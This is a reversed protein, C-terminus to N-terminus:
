FKDVFCMWSYCKSFKGFVQTNEQKKTISLTLM